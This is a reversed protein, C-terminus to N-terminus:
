EHRVEEDPIRGASGPKDPEGGSFLLTGALAGALISLIINWGSSLGGLRSLLIHVGAAILAVAGHRWHRRVEPMLLAVFLAYLVIGLSLQVKGPLIDGGALGVLTGSVWGLYATLEVGLVFSPSLEEPSFSLLSYTEDTVGFAELPLWRRSGSLRPFLSASMLFHRFNLLLTALVIEVMGASAAVLSVAMFQSAGAFVILSMLVGEPLSFGGYGAALGFAVACPFYGAFIPIGRLCGRRFSMCVENGSDNM